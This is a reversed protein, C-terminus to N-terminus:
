ALFYVLIQPGRLRFTSSRGRSVQAESGAGGRTARRTWTLFSKKPWKHDMLQILQINCCAFWSNRTTKATSFVRWPSQWRPMCLRSCLSKLLKPAWPLWELRELCLGASEFRIFLYFSQNKQYFHHLINLPHKRFWKPTVTDGVFMKKKNHRSDTAPYM